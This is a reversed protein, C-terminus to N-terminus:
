NMKILVQSGCDQVHNFVIKMNLKLVKWVNLNIQHVCLYLNRFCSIPLKVSRRSKSVEDDKFGSQFPFCQCKKTLTERYKQTTCEDRPEKQCGRVKKNLTFFSNKSFIEKIANLNYSYGLPM